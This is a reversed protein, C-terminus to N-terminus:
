RTTAAPPDAVLLAALFGEWQAVERPGPKADQPCDGRYGDLKLEYEWDSGAPLDAVALCAMPEIFHGIEARGKQAARRESRPEM